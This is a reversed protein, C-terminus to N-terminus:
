SQTIEYRKNEDKTSKVIVVRPRHPREGGDEVTVKAEVMKGRVWGRDRGLTSLVWKATAICRDEFIAKRIVDEAAYILVERADDMAKRLEENKRVRAGLSQPSCGLMKAANGIIGGTAELAEAVSANTIGRPGGRRHDPERSM